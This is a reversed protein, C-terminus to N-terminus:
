LSCSFEIGSFAHESIKTENIQKKRNRKRKQKTRQPQKPKCLYKDSRTLYYITYNTFEISSFVYIQESKRAREPLGERELM